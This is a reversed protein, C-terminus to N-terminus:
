ALRRLCGFPHQPTKRDPARFGLGSGSSPGPLNLTATDPGCNPIRPNRPKPSKPEPDDKRIPASAKSGFIGYPESALNCLLIPAKMILIPNQPGLVNCKYYPVGFYYLFNLGGYQIGQPPKQLTSNQLLPDWMLPKVKSDPLRTAVSIYM